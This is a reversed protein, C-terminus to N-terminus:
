TSKRALTGNITNTGFPVGCSHIKTNIFQLDFDKHTLESSTGQTICSGIGFRIELNQFRIHESFDSFGVPKAGFGKADIDIGDIVVYRVRARINYMDVVYSPVYGKPAQWFLGGAPQNNGSGQWCSHPFDSILGFSAFKACEEYTPLHVSDRVEAESYAYGPPLYRRFVPREGPFAKITVPSDWSTGSPIISAGNHSLAGNLGLGTDYEGSRVVLAEGPKLLPLAKQLTKFPQALTGPNTDNGSPSVYYSRTERREQNLGPSAVALVALLPVLWKVYAIV